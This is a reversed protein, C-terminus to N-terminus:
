RGSGGTLRATANVSSSGTKVTYSTGSVLQPVSILVRGSSGGPANSSAKTYDAPIEFTAYITSSTGISVTGGPTVSISPIVYAQTSTSKSPYSNNGGVGLIMGGTLYLAYGDEENVDIGCEPSSGGFTRIVGGSIYMNGNSDLGDNKSSIVDLDGGKIHMHSTSNIGDDYSRVKVTGGSITLESKSEIGEAGNGSTKISITGGSISVNGDSKIGKASSKYDSKLNDANGTYSQYEKGNVYAYLGGSTLISIEGSKINLAGDCSIGKGGGGTSTLNLTGGDITVTGDTGICASAKTKGADSDWMGGGSTMVTLKGGTMSFDGDCKLGKAATASVSLSITGGSVTISGTDEAERDTDNKFAVQMGDDGINSMNIEGSEMLFYQNCNVGDKVSGLINIKSNKVSIYEKAYIAHSKNGTVNVTGKQKFELHGTCSICGKQSGSPGDALTNVTGETVRMNIRKGNVIDIPAGSSSSLTLGALEVSAKFSGTLNFTGDESQGSLNYTIEGCTSDSVDASQEIFVDAKNVSADIYLAINGSIKVYATNGAYTVAVNNDAMPTADTVTIESIDQIAFTKGLVSLSTGSIYEMVGTIEAPYSYTVNGCRIDLIQASLLQSLASLCFTIFLKKM